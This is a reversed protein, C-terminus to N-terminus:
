VPWALADIQAKTTITENAIGNMAQALTAFVSQGYALVALALAVCQAGTLTVVGGNDDVWNTTEGPNATGWTLLGHLDTGTSATADCIVSLDGPLTYARVTARLTNAKAFAHARLQPITPPPPVPAVYAAVAGYKGAVLDDFLSQSAEDGDVALYGHSGARGDLTVMCRISKADASAYAPAAVSTITM